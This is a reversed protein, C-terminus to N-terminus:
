IRTGRIGMISGWDVRGRGIVSVVFDFNEPILSAKIIHAKVSM